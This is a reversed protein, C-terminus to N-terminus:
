PVALDGNVDINQRTAYGSLEVSCSDEGRDRVAPDVDDDDVLDIAQRSRESGECLADLQGRTEKTETV